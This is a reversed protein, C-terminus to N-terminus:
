RSIWVEHLTSECIQLLADWSSWHLSFLSLHSSNAIGKYNGLKV